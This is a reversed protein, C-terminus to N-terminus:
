VWRGCSPEEAPHPVDLLVERGFTTSRSARRRPRIPRGHHARLRAAVAEGTAPRRPARRRVRRTRSCRRTSPHAPSTTSSWTSRARPGPARRRGACRRPRGDDARRGARAPRRCTRRATSVAVSILSARRRSGRSRANTAPIWSPRARARDAFNVCSRSWPRRRRRRRRSAASDLGLELQVAVRRDDAAQLVQERLRQLGLAGAPAVTSVRTPSGSRPRRRRRRRTRSGADGGATVRLPAGCVIRESMTPTVTPRTPTDSVTVAVSAALRACASVVSSGITACRTCSAAASGIATVTVSVSAPISTPRRAHVHHPRHAARDRDRPGVDDPARTTSAFSPASAAALPLEAPM